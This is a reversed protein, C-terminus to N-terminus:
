ATHTEIRVHKGDSIVNNKGVSRWDNRWSSERYHRLELRSSSEKYEFDLSGDLIFQSFADLLPIDPCFSEQWLFQGQENCELFVWDGGPTVIFDFCGMVLGMRKLYSYCLQRIQEPIQIHDTEMEHQGARWDVMTSEQKQSHLLTGFCSRGFMAVRVEHSKKFEYQYIASVFGIVDDKPLDRERLVHTYNAFSKLAQESIQKWVCPRHTKFIISEGSKFFDRIAKPDNSFLSKPIKFGVDKALKLQLPKRDSRRKGALPNISRCGSYSDMLDRFGILAALNESEATSRDDVCIKESVTPGGWRRAWYRIEDGESVSFDLDPGHVRIQSEHSDCIDISIDAKVPFNEGFLLFSEISKQKLAWKVAHGHLDQALTEVIIKPTRM